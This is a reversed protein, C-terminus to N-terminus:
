KQRCYMCVFTLHLNRLIKHGEWFIFKLQCLKKEIKKMFNAGQMVEIYHSQNDAFDSSMMILQLIELSFVLIQKGQGTTILFINQTFSIKFNHLIWPSLPYQWSNLHQKIQPVNKTLRGEVVAKTVVYLLILFTVRSNKRFIFLVIWPVTLFFFHEKAKQFLRQSSFFM